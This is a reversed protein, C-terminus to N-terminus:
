KHVNDRWGPENPLKANRETMSGDFSPMGRITYKSPVTPLQIGEPMRALISALSEPQQPSEDGSSADSHSAEVSTPSREPEQSPAAQSSGRLRENEEQLSKILGGQENVQRETESQKTDLRTVHESFKTLLATMQAQEAKIGELTQAHESKLDAIAKAHESTATELRKEYDEKLENILRDRETEGNRIRKGLKDVDRRIQEIEDKALAQSLPPRLDTTVRPSPLAPNLKRSSGEAEVQSTFESAEPIYGGNDPLYANDDHTEDALSLNINDDGSSSGEDVPSSSRRQQVHHFDRDSDNLDSPRPSRSRISFRDLHQVRPSRSRDRRQRRPAPQNAEETEEPIREPRESIRFVQKCARADLSRLLLRSPIELRHGVFKFAAHVDEVSFQVRDDTLALDDIAKKIVELDKGQFPIIGDRLQAKEAKSPSEAVATLGIRFLVESFVSERDDSGSAAERAAMHLNHLTDPLVSGTGEILRANLGKIIPCHHPWRLSLSINAKADVRCLAAFKLADVFTRYEGRWLPHVVLKSLMGCAALTFLDSSLAIERQRAPGASGAPMRAPMFQLNNIPSLMIPPAQKLFRLCFRWVERLPDDNNGRTGVRDSSTKRSSAEWRAIMRDEAAQDWGDDDVPDGDGIIETVMELTVEANEAYRAQVSELLGEDIERKPRGAKPPPPNNNPASM